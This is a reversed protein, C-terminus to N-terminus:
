GTAAHEIVMITFVTGAHSSGFGGSRVIRLTETMRLLLIRIRNARHAALPYQFLSATLTGSSLFLWLQLDKSRSLKPGPYARPSWETRM